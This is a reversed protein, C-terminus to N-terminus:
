RVAEEDADGSDDAASPPGPLELLLVLVVEVVDPLLVAAM